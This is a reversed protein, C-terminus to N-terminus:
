LFPTGGMGPTAPDRGVEPRRMDFPPCLAASPLAQALRRVRLATARVVETGGALLRVSVLQIKRGERLVASEITLPALPVPRMLDVTLRVVRMPVPSPLREVAWCILSSPAAGHQLGPDWPGGAHASTEAAAGAVRYIGEVGVRVGRRGSCTGPQVSRM